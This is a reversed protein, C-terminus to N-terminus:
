YVMRPIGSQTRSMTPLVTGRSIASAPVAVIDWERGQAFLLMLADARDPSSVGRRKMDEKSEILIQGRSNVKYRIDTLQVILEEDEEIDIAEEEFLKRLGWYWEARTNAFQEPDAARAGAQMEDVEFEQEKLRDYVGAGIGVADIKACRAGTSRFALIVEGALTMTDCFPLIKLTRAVPGRRHMIVSEDSGFRAVDVALESPESPILIREVAAEIWHLPILGDTGVQPFRARVKALYLPSEEGWRTFRDYVWRPTVLYPAPLPGTIKEEWTNARIDDETIGFASFNPTEFASISIKGVSPIRFAKAFRGSPNTPNGIMLLRSEDATLVGDIAEYIEESVGSAEDVIVLTHIAHFGQFRDPDYDPATFGWAFWDSELKLEQSLLEGGLPWRARQHGTRIEKWLIGRVQRDTPATTLVLSHPYNYLWWLAVNAATYSKGAAHCSKVATERNDRVSEIIERQRQWLSRGLVNGVWGAPDAIAENALAEAEARPPRETPL